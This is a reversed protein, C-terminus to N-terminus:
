AMPLVAVPYAMVLPDVTAITMRHHRAQAVIMRDFPDRHLPPLGALAAFADEDIPLAGIGHASRMAPMWLAPPAPLTLKGLGHKVVAEWVSAVSLCVANGPDLIEARHRPPLKPDDAVFWLFVHTDLLLTM